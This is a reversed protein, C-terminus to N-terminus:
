QVRKVRNRTVAAREKSGEFAEGAIAPAKKKGYNGRLFRGKGSPLGDLLDGKEVTKTGGRRKVGGGGQITM